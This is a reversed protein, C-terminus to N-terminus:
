AELFPNSREFNNTMAASPTVFSGVAMFSLAVPLRSRRSKTIADRAVTPAEAAKPSIATRRVSAVASGPVSRSAM